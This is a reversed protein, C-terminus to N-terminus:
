AAKEKGSVEDSQPGFLVRLLRTKLVNLWHEERM